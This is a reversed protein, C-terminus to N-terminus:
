CIYNNQPPPPHPKKERKRETKQTIFIINLYASQQTHPKEELKKERFKFPTFTFMFQSITNLNVAHILDYLICIRSPSGIVAINVFQIRMHNIQLQVHMYDSLFQNM